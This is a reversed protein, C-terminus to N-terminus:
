SLWCWIFEDLNEPFQRIGKLERNMVPEEAPGTMRAPDKIQQLRGGLRLYIFHVVSGLLAVSAQTQEEIEAKGKVFRYALSLRCETQTSDFALCELKKRAALPQRQIHSAPV